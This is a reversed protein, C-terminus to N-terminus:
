PCLSLRPCYPKLHSFPVSQLIVKWGELTVWQRFVCVLGWVVVRRKRFCWFPLGQKWMVPQSCFSSNPATKLLALINTYAHPIPIAPCPPLNSRIWEPRSVGTKYLPWHLHYKSFLETWWMEKQLLATSHEGEQTSEFLTKQAQSMAASPWFYQYNIGGKCM